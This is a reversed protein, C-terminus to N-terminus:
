ECVGAVELVYCVEDEVWVVFVGAVAVEVEGGERRVEEELGEEGEDGEGAVELWEVEEKVAQLVETALAAGEAELVEPVHDRAPSLERTQFGPM